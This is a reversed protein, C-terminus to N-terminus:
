MLPVGVWGIDGMTFSRQNLSICGSMRVPVEWQTPNFSQIRTTRVPWTAVSSEDADPLPISSMSSRAQFGSASSIAPTRGPWSGGMWSVVSM